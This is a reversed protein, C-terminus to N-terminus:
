QKEMSWFVPFGFPIVGRLNSRYAAPASYQGGLLLNVNRHFAAQIEGALQKREVDTAAESYRHLLETQDPDCYWGPNFENCNNSVAPDSLPNVMDIGNWIIPVVSWGGQEVPARSQRRQAVTAFDSTHVDVNFGAQRLEDAVVLGILNLTASTAAHLIVVPENRYGAERLLAKAHEIGASRFVETGADTTGPSDCMYISLCRQMFMGPPLGLAGMVDEQNIAAQAARRALLNNFPPQLHNLTIISMIQEVGRQSPITVNPDQRLTDIFDFPVTELYDLEGKQLAAVRTAQDPVSILDVRDLRVVKGGSLGDAPEARPHYNPNRDFIAREGPRWENRRFLFPGSGIIEPVQKTADFTAIRAPMM